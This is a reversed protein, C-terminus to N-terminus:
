FRFTVRWAKKNGSEGSATIKVEVNDGAGASATESSNSCSHPSGSTVTCSLLTAGTSNDIVSVLVTDTGSVTASSDAYLDAISGGNAPMPALRLSTSFGVTKAACTGSGTKAMASYDLCTGSAVEKTAVFTAVAGSDGESNCGLQGESNVKVACASAGVAKKYVGAVFTKTQTGESGIRTIGSEGVEGVNSIDINNSGTTLASGADLGIATNYEGTTNSELAGIGDATNGAGSTNFGLALVGSATNAYGTTNKQLADAGSATNSEGTLNELLADAGSATNRHGTTNAKLARFGSAVNDEGTTNSFLAETGSALDEFGTTNSKLAEVGSAINDHGTTNEALAEFGFAVNNSGTTNHFLAFRGSAINLSGSTNHNLAEVGSAINEHGTTDAALAGFGLALNDSGTTLLSMMGDGLATNNSGTVHEGWKPCGETAVRNGECVNHKADQYDAAVSVAANLALMLTAVVATVALSAGHPLGTRRM